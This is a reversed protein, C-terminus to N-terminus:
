HHYNNNNYNNYYYYYNNNYYYYNNNYSCHYLVADCPSLLLLKYELKLCLLASCPM